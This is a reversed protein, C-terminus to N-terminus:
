SKEKSVSETTVTDPGRGAERSRPDADQPLVNADTKMDDAGLLVRMSRTSSKLPLLDKHTTLIGAM